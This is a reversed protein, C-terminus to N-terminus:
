KEDNCIVSTEFNRLDNIESVSILYNTEIFINYQQISIRWGQKKACNRSFM